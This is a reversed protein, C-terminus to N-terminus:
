LGIVGGDRVVGVHLHQQESLLVQVNSRYATSSPWGM